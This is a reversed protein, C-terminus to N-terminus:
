RSPLDDGILVNWSDTKLASGLCFHVRAEDLNNGLHVFDGVFDEIEEEDEDASLDLANALNKDDAELHSDILSM